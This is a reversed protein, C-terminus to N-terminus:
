ITFKALVKYLRELFYYSDDVKLFSMNTEGDFCISDDSVNNSSIKTAKHHEIIRGKKKELELILLHVGV